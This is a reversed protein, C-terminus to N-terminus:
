NKVWGVQRNVLAVSNMQCIFTIPFNCFSYSLSKYIIKRLTLFFLQCYMRMHYLAAHPNKQTQQYQTQRRTNTNWRFFLKLPIIVGNIQGTPSQVYSFSFLFLSSFAESIKTSRWTFRHLPLHYKELYEPLM